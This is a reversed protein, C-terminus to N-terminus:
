KDGADFMRASTGKPNQGFHQRIELLLAAIKNRHYVAAPNDAGHILEMDAMIENYGHYLKLFQQRYEEAIKEWDIYATRVPICTVQGCNFCQVRETQMTMKFLDAPNPPDLSFINHIPSYHKM